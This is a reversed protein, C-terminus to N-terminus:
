NLWPGPAMSISRQCSRASRSTPHLQAGELELPGLTADPDDRRRAEVAAGERARADVQDVRLAVGDLRQRQREEPPDFGELRPDLDTSEGGVEVAHPEEDGQLGRASRPHNTHFIWTGHLPEQLRAHRKKARQLLGRTMGKLDTRPAAGHGIGRGRGRISLFRVLGEIRGPGAGVEVVPNSFLLYVGAGAALAGLAFTVTSITALTSGSRGAKIGEPDCRKDKCHAEVTAKRDLVRLGLVLSAGVSLGGVGTLIWGATRAGGGHEVPGPTQAPWAFPAESAPSPASLPPPLASPIASSATPVASRPGVQVSVERQEGEALLVESRAVEHGSARVEILHKGPDVPLFVGLAATGMPVGDRFVQVAEPSGDTLRLLLRPIRPELEKIKRQALTHRPDAAPLMEMLDLYHQRATALKRLREACDAVNLLTGPAPDLRYSEAISTCGEKINGAKIAARGQRFLADAAV